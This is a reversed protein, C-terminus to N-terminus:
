YPREGQVRRDRLSAAQGHTEKCESGTIRHCAVSRGDGCDVLIPDVTRCVDLAQWCRPAFRCGPAPDIPSPVDGTLIIREKHMGVVPLPVASLLAQTYPHLPAGFLAKTAGTEVLKGMYMVAVRRSIHKVVSLDHSIFLYSVGTETQLDILLNLIQAQISVDLASVPEDLVIVDPQLALARGIGVCQRKGGDLEHPYKDLMNSALQVSRCVEAVREKVNTMRNLKLPESLVQWVSKRPNLSSYPDQFVMQVRRRIKRSEGSGKRWLERDGLMVKGSTAPLLGCIIRGVTTKGCGSEGVLGLTEGPPIEFSVGDVAHLMGQRPVRFYKVLDMVRLTRSGSEGNHTIAHSSIGM